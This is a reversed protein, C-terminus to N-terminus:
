SQFTGRGALRGSGENGPGPRERRPARPTRASEVPLRLDRPRIADASEAEIQPSGEGYAQQHYYSPGWILVSALNLAEGEIQPWMDEPTVGETPNEYHSCGASHIHHDGSYWGDLVSRDLSRTQVFDGSPGCGEAIADALHELAARRRAHIRVQRFRFRTATGGTSRHSSSSTRRSGSRSTRTSETTAFSSGPSRRAAVRM